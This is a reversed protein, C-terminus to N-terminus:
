IDPTSLTAPEDPPVIDKGCQWCIDFDAPNTEGCHPCKKDKIIQYPHGCEPCKGDQTQGRLDYGCKTCRVNGTAPDVRTDPPNEQRESVFSEAIDRVAQSHPDADIWVAFESQGTYSNILETNVTAEIGADQLRAALDNANHIRYFAAIRHM